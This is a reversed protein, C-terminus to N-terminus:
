SFYHMLGSRLDSGTVGGTKMAPNKKASLPICEMVVQPLILISNGFSFLSSFFAEYQKLLETLRELVTLRCGEM